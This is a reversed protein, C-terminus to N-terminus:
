SKVTEAFPTWVNQYGNALLKLCISVICHGTDDEYDFGGITHVANGCIMVVDSSPISMNRAYLNTMMCGEYDRNFGEDIYELKGSDDQRVGCQRITNNDSLMRMGVAGTKKDRAFGLLEQIWSETVPISMGDMFVFYDNKKAEIIYNFFASINNYEYINCKEKLGEISSLEISGAISIDFNCYDTINVLSQVAEYNIKNSKTGWIVVNVSPNGSITYDVKYVTPFQEYCSRVTGKINNRKLHASVANAGAKVAYEKAGIGSAVSNDHCRWYYLVKPIHVIREANETLRLIMDHDQSGDFESNYMGVRNLLEKSYVSLHCIYNNGRIGIQSFEYKQHIGIIRDPEGEFVLEDTYIFDAKENELVNMCEYLASPHLMDDHDLMVIYDGASEKIAANTNNSIGGNCELRIYKVRKDQEKYKCITKRVEEHESDSADAICLEFESYTQVLCSEIMAKLFPVPTNYVPVIISFLIDKTFKRNKQKEKEDESIVINNKYFAKIACRRKISGYLRTIFSRVGESKIIQFVKGM